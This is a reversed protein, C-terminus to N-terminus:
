FTFGLGISFQTRNNESESPMYYDLSAKIFMGATNSKSVSTFYSLTGGIKSYSEKLYQFDPTIFDTIIHSGPEAGGYVFDGNLNNKYIYDAGAVIRSHGGLKFNYKGNAGLYLNEVKMLSEPIIYLDDSVNYSLGAGARWRYEREAGRFFNYRFSLEQDAFTSRISNYITIWQQVEYSNDLYQVFEIGSMDKKNFEIDFRSINDRGLVAGLAIGLENEKVSGEKKPKSPASIVDEARFNYKGSLLIKVGDAAYYYQLAAGATNGEYLFTGLSQLGGVVATYGNGLGKLVFVDQNTQGDSNTTLSEQKLNQYRFNLGVSHTGFTLVMSPQVNITYYDTESRPDIQKAGVKAIYDAEIGLIVKDWLPSTAAKMSLSYSQRFWDSINKDVTYYPMGRLPDLMTTNYLTNRLVENDYKFSGWVYGKGISLGGETSFGILREKEGEHKLKYDGAKNGYVFNLDSYYPLQDLVMGAGNGSNLWLAGAKLLEISAPSNMKVGSGQAAATQTLGLTMFVAGAWYIYKVLRM